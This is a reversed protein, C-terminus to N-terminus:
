TYKTFHYYAININIAHLKKVIDLTYENVRLVSIAHKM